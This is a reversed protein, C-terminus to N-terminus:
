KEARESKVRALIGSRVQALANTAADLEDKMRVQKEGKMAKLFQRQKHYERVCWDASKGWVWVDSSIGTTVELTRLIEGWDVDQEISPLHKKTSRDCKHVAVEIGELLEAETVNVRLAFNRIAKRATERDNLNAFAERDRGHALAYVMAWFYTKDTVKWWDRVYEDLWVSAGITLNYLNTGDSLVVPMGVAELNAEKFPNRMRDVAHVLEVLEDATLDKLEIGQAKLEAVEKEFLPNM